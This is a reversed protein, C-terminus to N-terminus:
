EVETHIDMCKNRGFCFRWCRGNGGLASIISAPEQVVPRPRLGPREGNVVSAVYGGSAGAYSGSKDIFTVRSSLPSLFAM